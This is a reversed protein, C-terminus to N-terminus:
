SRKCQFLERNYKSLRALQEFANSLWSKVLIVMELSVAFAMKMGNSAGGMTLDTRVVPHLQSRGLIFSVPIKAVSVVM